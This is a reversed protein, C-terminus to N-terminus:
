YASLKAFATVRRTYSESQFAGVTQQPLQPLQCSETSLRVLHKSIGIVSNIWCPPSTFIDLPFIYLAMSRTKEPLSPSNHDWCHTCREPSIIYAWDQELVWKDFIVTSLLALETIRRVSGLLRVGAGGVHYECICMSVHSVRASQSHGRHSDNVAAHPLFHPSSLIVGWLTLKKKENRTLM